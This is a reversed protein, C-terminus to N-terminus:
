LSAYVQRSYILVIQGEIINATFFGSNEMKLHFISACRRLIKVKFKMILLLLGKWNKIKMIKVEISEFQNARSKVNFEATAINRFLWVDNWRRENEIKEVGKEQENDDQRGMLIGGVKLNAFTM